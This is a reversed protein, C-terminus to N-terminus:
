KAKAALVSALFELSQRLVASLGYHEATGHLGEWVHEASMAKTGDALHGIEQSIKHQLENLGKFAKTQEEGRLDLAFCRGHVTLQNSLWALFSVKRMDTSALFWRRLGETKETEPPLQYVM